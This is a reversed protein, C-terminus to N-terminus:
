NILSAAGEMVSPILGDEFINRATMSARANYNAIATTYQSRLGQAVARLRSNETKDEFTWTSREGASAEFSLVAQEAITIKTELAEIDQKQQKFWEYNYIANDATLTQDIVGQATELGREAARFPLTIIGLLLGAISLAIFGGFLLTLFGLLRM